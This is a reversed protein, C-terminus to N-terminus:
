KNKPIITINVAAADFPDVTLIKNYISSILSSKPTVDISLQGLTNNVDIPNFNELTLVGTAYDITGATSSLVTKVNSTNNYYTRLIGFRGELTVIGAALKGATDNLQPTFTIIADTYGSGKNTVTVGTVSGFTNIIAVGTAGTGDGFIKVEPTYIYGFGPNTISISEVGGTSSPVEELYVNDIIEVLNLPKRFKMSPFSSVGSTLTGRELQTNFDLVYSTPVTLIPYLKKQLQISIENTIISRDTNKITNNFEPAMFIANFSNLTKKAYAQIAAIVATKLTAATQTTNKPDYLVNASIIIYTYDPDVIEPEVTMVSIPKIVDEIINQKQINTLSYAGSPKLCVFVKGYVPPNNEQGGWVNVADFSYGLNNQQILTIYDDKTVARGQAAFTKPATFKISDISEKPGGNTAPTRSFVQIGTFNTVQDLLSFSNAGTAALGETSLYNVRIINGDNLAKGIIDDGFYIEYNGNLSEQLFYIKEDGSIQIFNSGLTYTETFSNSFSQQVRVLMTSTDINPDPIEYIGSANTTQDVTFAYNTPVGQKIEIARFEAKGDIVPVTTTEVSVFNYNVSNIAQSIFNTFRPLTVASINDQFVDIDITATPAIVSRPTYGIEKAHSVVSSRQLATDLFMENAVMNLYFGNYQTNYALVDLLISLGSGTFNYDKFTDQSRLFNTFNSKIDAFDLEAVQITNNASAM